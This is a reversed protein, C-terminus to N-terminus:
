REEPVHAAYQPPFRCQGPIDRTAWLVTLIDLVRFLWRWCLYYHSGPTRSARRFSRTCERTGIQCTPAFCNRHQQTKTGECCQPSDQSPHTGQDSSRPILATTWHKRCEASGAAGEGVLREMAKSISGTTTLARATKGRQEDTQPQVTKKGRIHPGTDSSEVLDHIERTEGLQKLETNRDSRKPVEAPLLRCRYRCLIAWSQHGTLAEEIGIATQIKVYNTTKRIEKGASLFLSSEGTTHLSAGSDVIYMRDKFKKSLKPKSKNAEEVPCYGMFFYTEHM